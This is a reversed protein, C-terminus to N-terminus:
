LAALVYACALNLKTYVIGDSQCGVWGRVVLRKRPAELLIFKPQLKTARRDKSIM